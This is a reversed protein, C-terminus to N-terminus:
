RRLRLGSSDHSNSKILMTLSSAPWNCTRSRERHDQLTIVCCARSMIGVSCKDVRRNWGRVLIMAEGPEMNRFFHRM